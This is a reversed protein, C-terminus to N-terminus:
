QAAASAGLPFGAQALDQLLKREEEASIAHLPARLHRWRADGTQHALMTKMRAIFGGQVIIKIVAEIAAQHPAAASTNAADFLKRMVGPVLNATGCLTGVGGHALANQLHHEAGVFITLDPFDRLRQETEPWNAFSDKLGVVVRPYRTMLRRLAASFVPVASLQPIHYAFVRLRDDGVLDITRAFSAYVGEDDVNKFFFPPLLLVKAVGAAVAHKGLEAADGFAAAGIGFMIQDAPIGAKLMGDLTARREAVTFSQGEGTTGFPAVGDIGAAFLNRCHQAMLGVDVAGDATQPTLTACWVGHAAKNQTM